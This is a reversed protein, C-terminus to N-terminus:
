GGEWPRNRGCGKVCMVPDAPHRPYVLLFSGGCQHSKHSHYNDADGTIQPASMLFRLQVCLHYVLRSALALGAFTPNSYGSVPFLSCGAIYLSPVEHMRADSNTVGDAHDRSMRLTGM